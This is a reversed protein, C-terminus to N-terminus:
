RRDILRLSVGANLYALEDMRAAVRDFDFDLTTKFIEPDPKFTVTTGTAKVGQVCVCILWALVGRRLSLTLSALRVHEAFHLDYGIVV